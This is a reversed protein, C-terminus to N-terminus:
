FIFLRKMYYVCIKNGCSEIWTIILIYLPAYVVWVWFFSWIGSYFWGYQANVYMGCFVVCYYFFFINLGLMFVGAIIRRIMLVFNYDKVEKSNEKKSALEELIINADKYLVLSIARVVLNLAICTSIAAMIKEFETKMPYGFNDRHKDYIRDELMTENFYLANFGFLNLVNYLFIWSTFIIPSLFTEHFISLLPHLSLFNSYLLSCFPRSSPQVSLHIDDSKIARNESDAFKDNSKKIVSNTSDGNINVMEIENLGVINRVKGIWLTIDFFIIFIYMILFIWFGINEAINEVDGGCLTPINDIHDIDVDGPLQASDLSYSIEDGASKCSFLLMNTALNYENFTCSTSNITYGQFICQRRYKQTLDFDFHKSIFCSDTFAKDKPNYINIGKSAYYKFLDENFTKVSIPLQAKSLPCKKIDHEASNKIASIMIIDSPNTKSDERIATIDSNLITQVIIIDSPTTKPLESCTGFEFIPLNETLSSAKYETVGEILKYRQFTIYKTMDTLFEYKQSQLLAAKENVKKALEILNKLETASDLNRLRKEKFLSVKVHFAFVLLEFYCTYTDGSSFSIATNITSDLIFIFLISVFIM